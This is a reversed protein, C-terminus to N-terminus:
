RRFPATRTCRSPRGPSRGAAPSTSCTPRQQWATFALNQLAFVGDIKKEIWRRPLEPFVEFLLRGRVEESEKGSHIVMFDNWFVVRYDGDLLMVGLNINQLVAGLEAHM